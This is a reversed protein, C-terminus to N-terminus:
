GGPEQVPLGDHPLGRAPGPHQRPRRDFEETLGDAVYDGDQNASLILFPLVAVSDIAGPRAESAFMRWAGFLGAIVVVLGVGSALAVGIRPVRWEVIDAPAVDSEGTGDPSAGVPVVDSGADVSDIPSRRVPGRFRYGRKPITEIYEQGDPSRGLVKRLSSVNRALSGEEVFTDPWIRKLLYDKELVRGPQEVLALLTDFVKPSLPVPTGSSLLVRQGADIRYCDFELFDEPQLPM